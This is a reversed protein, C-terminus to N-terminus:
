QPTRKKFERLGILYANFKDWEEEIWDLHLLVIDQHESKRIAWMTQILEKVDRDTTDPETKM